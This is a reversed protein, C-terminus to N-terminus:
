NTRGPIGIITSNEKYCSKTVVAGAGIKCGNSIYVDGIIVAGFGIDVNDGIIPCKDDKGNNGICNCGHLKCNKGIKSKGHIVINDHYLTIGIGLADYGGPFKLGLKQHM